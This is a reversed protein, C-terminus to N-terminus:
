NGKVTISTKTVWYVEDIAEHLKTLSPEELVDGYQKEKKWWLPGERGM